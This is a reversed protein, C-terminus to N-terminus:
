RTPRYDPLQWCAATAMPRKECEYDEQKHCIVSVWASTEFTQAVAVVLVHIYLGWIEIRAFALFNHSSTLGLMHSWKRAWRLSSKLFNGKHKHGISLVWPFIARSSFIHCFLATLKELNNLHFWTNGMVMGLPWNGCIITEKWFSFKM